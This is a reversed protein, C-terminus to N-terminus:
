GPRFAPLHGGETKNSWTWWEGRGYVRNKKFSRHTFM